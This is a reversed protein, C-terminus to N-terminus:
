LAGRQARKHTLHEAFEPDYALSKKPVNSTVAPAPRVRMIPGAFSSYGSIWQSPSVNVYTEAGSSGEVRETRVKVTPPSPRAEASSTLLM